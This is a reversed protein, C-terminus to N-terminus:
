TSHSNLEYLLTSIEKDLMTQEVLLKIGHYGTLDFGIRDLDFKDQTQYNFWGLEKLRRALYEQETQGPTPVLLVSTKGLVALDMLTSYGSRCVVLRANGIAMALQDTILHNKQSINELLEINNLEDPKGRVIIAPYNAKKLQDLICKEFISRQPEPGSLMALLGGNSIVEQSEKKQFRSLLGIFRANKPLPYKHSLDGSLNEPGPLDPIWCANFKQILFRNVRYLLPEAFKLYRPTKFMVQHTIFICKAKKTFLGFRNDSIVVDIKVDAVLQSIAKHEVFTHWALSIIWGPIRLILHKGSSFRPSFGHLIICEIGNCEEKLLSLVQGEAAVIVEFGAIQLKRIIPICRSAHGLGWNLPCVMVRPNQKKFDVM